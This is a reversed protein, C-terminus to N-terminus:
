WGSGFLRKSLPVKALDAVVPVEAQNRTPNRAPPNQWRLRHCFGGAGSPRTQRGRTRGALM